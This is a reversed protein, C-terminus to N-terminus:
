QLTRPEEGGSRQVQYVTTMEYAVSADLSLNLQAVVHRNAARKAWAIAYAGRQLLGTVLDQVKADLEEPAVAYNIVGIRELERAEYSRCLMLYEKMRCPTLYLAMLAGGDGPVVSFHPHGGPRTRGDYSTTFSGAMHHDMFCAGESAVILDCAFAISAGFGIADGNVRAVIPKEMEAMAQHCRLIGNFTLWMLRPDSQNEPAQVGDYLDSPPPTFFTEASGTIVVVRVSHDARLRELESALEGHFSGQSGEVFPLLRVTAVGGDQDSDILTM